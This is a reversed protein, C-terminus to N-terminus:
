AKTTAYSPIADVKTPLYRSVDYVYFQTAPPYVNPNQPKLALKAFFAQKTKVAYGALWLEPSAPDEHLYLADLDSAQDGLTMTIREGECAIAFWEPNDATIRPGPAEESGFGPLRVSVGTRTVAVPSANPDTPKPPAPPKPPIKKNVRRWEAVGAQARALAKEDRVAKGSRVECFPALRGEALKHADLSTTAEPLPAYAPPTRSANAPYVSITPLNCATAGLLGLLSAFAMVTGEIDKM